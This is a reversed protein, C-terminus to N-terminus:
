SADASNETAEETSAKVWLTCILHALVMGLCTFIFTVVYRVLIYFLVIPVEILMFFVTIAASVYAATRLDNILHSPTKFYSM